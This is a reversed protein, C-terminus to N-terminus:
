TSAQPPIDPDYCIQNEQVRCIQIVLLRELIMKYVLKQKLFFLSFKRLSINSIRLCSVRVCYFNGTGLFSSTYTVSIM